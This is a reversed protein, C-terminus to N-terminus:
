AAQIAPMPPPQDTTPRKSKKPKCAKELAKACFKIGYKGAVICMEKMAQRAGMAGLKRINAAYEEGIQERSGISAVARFINACFRGEQDPMAVVIDWTRKFNELDGKWCRLLTTICELCEKQPGKSIRYGASKLFADIAICDADEATLSARFRDVTKVPSRGENITLFAKAEESVSDFRFVLCPILDVDPRCLAGKLRHGGDVVWYKDERFSVHLSGFAFWDFNARIAAILKQNETTRQYRGDSEIIQKNLWKLDSPKRRVAANSKQNPTLDIIDNNM